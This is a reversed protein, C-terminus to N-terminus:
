YSTTNNDAYKAENSYTFPFDQGSKFWLCHAGDCRSFGAPYKGSFLNGFNSYQFVHM